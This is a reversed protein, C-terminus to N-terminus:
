AHLVRASHVACRKAFVIASAAVNNQGVIFVYHYYVFLRKLIVVVDGRYDYGGRYCFYARASKFVTRLQPRNVENGLFRHGNRVCVKRQYHFVRKFVTGLELKDVEGINFSNRNVPRRELAAGRKFLHATHVFDAGHVRARELAAGRKLFRIYGSQVIYAVAHELAAGRKIRNFRLVIGCDAVIHKRTTGRKYANGYVSGNDARM